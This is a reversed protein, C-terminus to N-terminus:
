FLREQAPKLCHPSFWVREKLRNKKGATEADGQSAYGGSAKWEFVEWDPPFTYGDEEYHCLAIRMLSNKGERIAWERVAWAVDQSDVSYAMNREGSYPPDLFVGTLGHKWTVSPSILSTWDCCNLRVYRLRESLQRMLAYLGSADKGSGHLRQRHVGKGANGLHLSKRHVGNGGGTRKTLVGDVSVWSGDGSCWGSGTWCSIGWVWWGAAKADYYEADGMLRATMDERRGLMWLHRAVLDCQTQPYDAWAAVADPEARVARFFNAVFGDADNATELKPATPRALLVALSGGFVEVFNVPDGLREWVAGAIASKGGFYPVPARLPARLGVTPAAGNLTEEDVDEDFDLDLTRM